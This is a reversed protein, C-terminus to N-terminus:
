PQYYTSGGPYLYLQTHVWQVGTYGCGLGPVSGGLAGYNWSTYYSQDGNYGGGQSTSRWCYLPYAYDTPIPVGASIVHGLSDWCWGDDETQRWGLTLFGEAITTRTKAVAATSGHPPPDGGGVPSDVITQTTV